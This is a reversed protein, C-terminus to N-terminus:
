VTGWGDGCQNKSVTVVCLCGKSVLYKCSAFLVNEQRNDRFLLEAFSDRDLQQM